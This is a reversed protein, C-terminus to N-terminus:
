VKIIVSINQFSYELSYIDRINRNIVNL